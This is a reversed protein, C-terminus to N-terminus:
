NRMPLSFIIIGFRLAKKVSNMFVDIRNGRIKGGTDEARRWGLGEIYLYSGLPIVRPDVAVTRGETARTGTRTKGDAWRGCSRASPEYATCVFTDLKISHIIGNLRANEARLYILNRELIRQNEMLAVIARTLTDVRVMLCGIAAALLLAGAVRVVRKILRDMM